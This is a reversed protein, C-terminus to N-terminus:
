KLIRQAQRYESNAKDTQKLNLQKAAKEKQEVDKNTVEIVEDDTTTAKQEDDTTDPANICPICAYEPKAQYIVKGYADEIRQIFHPQVRYGGNAFTAYGTAMQIPLVQPT